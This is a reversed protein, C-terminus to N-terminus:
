KNKKKNEEYKKKIIDYLYAILVLAIGVGMAVLIDLVINIRM